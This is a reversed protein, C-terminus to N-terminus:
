FQGQNDSRFAFALGVGAQPVIVLDNLSLGGPNGFSPGPNNPYGLIFSCNSNQLHTEFYFGHFHWTALISSDDNTGWRFVGNPVEVDTM